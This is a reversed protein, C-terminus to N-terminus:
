RELFCADGSVDARSEHEIVTNLEIIQGRWGWSDAKCSLNPLLRISSAEALGWLHVNKILSNFKKKRDTVMSAITM